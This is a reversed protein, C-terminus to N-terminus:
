KLDESVIVGLDREETATPLQCTRMVYHVKPNNYELHMVKCKDINFLMQWDVSWSVLNHLDARLSDIAKLSNVTHYIKTDDAFKLIKRNIHEDIDNIYLVFLIPGLVSGQPVGSLAESWDSVQGGLMVGQKRGCLWNETWRLVNGSIGHAELKL